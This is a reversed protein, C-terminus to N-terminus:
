LHRRFQVSPKLGRDRLCYPTRPALPNHRRVLGIFFARWRANIARWRAMSTRYRVYSHEGADLAKGQSAIRRGRWLDNSTCTIVLTWGSHLRSSSRTSWRTIRLPENACLAYPVPAWGAGYSRQPERLYNNGILPWSIAEETWPRVRMRKSRFTLAIGCVSRLRRTLGISFVFVGGFPRQRRPQPSRIVGYHRWFHASV